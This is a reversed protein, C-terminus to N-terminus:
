WVSLPLYDLLQHQHSDTWGLAFLCTCCPALVVDLLPPNELLSLEQQTKDSSLKTPIQYPLMKRNVPYPLSFNFHMSLCKDFFYNVFLNDEAHVHRFVFISSWDPVWQFIHHFWCVSRIYCSLCYLYKTELFVIEIFLNGQLYLLTGTQFTKHKRALNFYSSHKGPNHPM